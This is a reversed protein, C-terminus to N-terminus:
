FVSLLLKNHVYMKLLEKIKFEIHSFLKQEEATGQKPM